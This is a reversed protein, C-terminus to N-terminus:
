GTKSVEGGMREIGKRVLALGIGTGQYSESRHLRETLSPQRAGSVRGRAHGGIASGAM